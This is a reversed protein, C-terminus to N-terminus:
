LEDFIFLDEIFGIQNPTLEISKPFKIKELDLNINLEGLEKMEKSFKERNKEDPFTFTEKNESEKGLEKCLKIRIEQFDQTKTNISKVLRNIKFATVANLRSNAIEKLAEHFAPHGFLGNKLMITDNKKTSKRKTM